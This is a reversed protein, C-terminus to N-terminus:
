GPTLEGNYETMEEFSYGLAKIDRLFLRHVRRQIEPTYFEAYSPLTVQPETSRYYHEGFRKKRRELGPGTNLADFIELYTRDHWKEGTTKKKAWHGPRFDAVTFNHGGFENFADVFEQLNEQRFIRYTNHIPFHQYGFHHNCTALDLTEMWELFRIFTWSACEPSCAKFTYQSVARAYPNRVFKVSLYGAIPRGRNPIQRPHTGPNLRRIINDVTNVGARPTVSLVLKWKPLTRVLDM